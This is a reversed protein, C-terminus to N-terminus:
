DVEAQECLFSFVESSVLIALLFKFFKTVGESVIDQHSIKIRVLVGEDVYVCVTNIKRCDVHMGM